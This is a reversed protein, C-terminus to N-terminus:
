ENEDLDEVPTEDDSVAEEPVDDGDEDDNDNDDGSERLPIIAFRNKSSPIRDWRGLRPEQGVAAVCFRAKPGIAIDNIYGNIPIKGIPEIGREKNTDGTSVQKVVSVNAICFSTTILITWGELIVICRM